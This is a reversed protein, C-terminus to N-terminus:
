HRLVCTPALGPGSRLRVNCIVDLGGAERGPTVLLGLQAVGAEESDAPPLSVVEGVDGRDEVLQLNQEDGVTLYTM